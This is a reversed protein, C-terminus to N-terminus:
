THWGARFRIKPAWTRGQFYCQTLGRVLDLLYEGLTVAGVLAVFSACTQAAVKRKADVREPRASQKPSLWLGVGLVVFCIATNPKMSVIGSHFAKLTEFGFAWGVLVLCGVIVSGASASQAFLLYRRIPPGFVYASRISM